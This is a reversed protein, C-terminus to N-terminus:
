QQLVAKIANKLGPITIQSSGAIAYRIVHNKDTVIYSPYSKIQYADAIARGSSILEAYLLPKEKLKAAAIKQEDTTIALVLLDKTNDVQKMFTGIDAFDETCPPCNAYWFVLVIAKNELREKEYFATLPSVDLTKGEAIASNNIKMFEKIMEYRKFQEEQSIKKLFAKTTPLSPNGDYNISYEGTNMVKSYQYYRLAKGTEDYVVRNTDLKSHAISTSVKIVKKQVSKSTDQAFILACSCISLLLTFLYKM